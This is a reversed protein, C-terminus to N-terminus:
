KTELLTSLLNAIQSEERLTGEQHAAADESQTLQALQAALSKVASDRPVYTRDPPSVTEWGSTLRRLEWRVNERLQKRQVTGNVISVKSDIRLHAWGHDRKIELREVTFREVIVVPLRFTFFDASQLMNGAADNLKSIGEAVEERTPPKVGEAVIITSPVELAAGAEALEAPPMPGYILGTQESVAKSPENTSVEETLRQETVAVEGQQANTNSAQPSVRVKAAALTTGNHVKYRYFRPHGRSKWYASGYDRVGLGTSGLSSFTHQSPNVVIGVHGPWVILDGARPFKVRVFNENGSFLEFSSAYPYDFGASLYIQHTLHSCDQTGRPPPEQELAVNVISRGEKVTLLRTTPPKKPLSDAVQPRATAGMLCVIGLALVFGQRSSSGLKLNVTRVSM